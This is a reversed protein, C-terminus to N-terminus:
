KVCEQDLNSKRKDLIDWFIDLFRYNQCKKVIGWIQM